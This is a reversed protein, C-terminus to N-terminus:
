ERLKGQFLNVKSNFPNGAARRMMVMQGVHWLADALPGNLNNWFPYESRREGRQFILKFNQMEDPHSVRLIDSAEKLRMLIIRRQEEFPPATYAGGRIIPQGVIARHVMQVLDHIHENTEAISRGDPSPRYALDEARLGETAWYYRFGLGDIMRAVVSCANYSAPAPPIERYPLPADATPPSLDPMHAYFKTHLFVQKWEGDHRIGVLFQYLDEDVPIWADTMENGGYEYHYFISDGAFSLYGTTLGGLADFEYFEMRETTPNWRRIGHNRAGWQTQAADTFGMTEARIIHGNLDTSFHISQKFRQGNDWVEDAHWSRHLLPEFAAYAASRAPSTQATLLSVLGSSILLLI